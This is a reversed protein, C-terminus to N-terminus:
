RAVVPVIQSGCYERILKVREIGYIENVDSHVGIGQPQKQEFIVRHSGLSLNV